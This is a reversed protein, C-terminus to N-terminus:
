SGVCNHLGFHIPINNRRWAKIGGKVIDKLQVVGLVRAGDVVVLPTGGQTAIADV